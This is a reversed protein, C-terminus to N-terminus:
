IECLASWKWGFGDGRPALLLGLAQKPCVEPEIFFFLVLIVTSVKSSIKGM